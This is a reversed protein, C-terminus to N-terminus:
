NLFRLIEADREPNELGMIEDHDDIGFILTGGFSNAFASISKCWSMPKKVELQLKKDYESTEGIIKKYEYM